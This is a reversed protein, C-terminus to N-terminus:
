MNYLQRLSDVTAQHHAIILWIQGEIDPELGREIAVKSKALVQHTAPHAQPDLFLGLTSKTQHKVTYAPFTDRFHIAENTQRPMKLLSFLPPPSPPYPQSSVKLAAQLEMRLEDRRRVVEEFVSRTWNSTVM